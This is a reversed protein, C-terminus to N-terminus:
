HNFHVETAQIRLTVVTAQSEGFEIDIGDREVLVESGNVFVRAVKHMLPDKDGSAGEYDKLEVVTRPLNRSM